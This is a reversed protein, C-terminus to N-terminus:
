GGIINEVIEVNEIVYTNIFGQTYAFGFVIDVAARLEINNSDLLSSVDVIPNNYRYAIYKSHLLQDSLYNNSLKYVLKKLIDIPDRSFDGYCQILCTMENQQRDLFLLDDNVGYSENSGIDNINSVRLTIYPKEPRPANQNAIITTVGTLESIIGAMNKKLLMIDTIV